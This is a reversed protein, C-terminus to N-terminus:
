LKKQFLGVVDSLTNKYNELMRDYGIQNYLKEACNSTMILLIPIRRKNYSLPELKYILSQFVLREYLARFAASADGLYNPTGLILGDANRIAELVPAL